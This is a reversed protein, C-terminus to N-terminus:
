SLATEFVERARKADIVRGQRFLALAADIGAEDDPTLAPAEDEVAEVAYRGARLECARAAPRQREVDRNARSSWAM